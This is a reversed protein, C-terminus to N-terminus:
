IMCPTITQNIFSVRIVNHCCNRHCSRLARKGHNAVRLSDLPINKEKAGGSTRIYDM